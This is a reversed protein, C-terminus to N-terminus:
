KERIIVKCVVSADSVDIPNVVFGEFKATAIKKALDNGNVGGAVSMTASGATYNPNEIAKFGPTNKEVWEQIALFHRYSRLGSLSLNVSYPASEAKASSGGGKLTMGDMESILQQAADAVAAALAIGGGTTEDVHPKASTATTSALVEGNGADLLKLQANAQISKMSSGVIQGSSKAYGKGTIVYPAQLRSGTAIAAKQDGALVQIAQERLVNGRVTQSDVVDYGADRLVSLLTEEGTGPDMWNGSLGFVGRVQEEFVVAIKAKGAFASSAVALLCVVLLRHNM